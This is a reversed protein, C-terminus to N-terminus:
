RRARPNGKSFSYLLQGDQRHMEVSLETSSIQVSAFGGQDGYFYRLYGEPVEAINRTDNRRSLKEESGSGSVVYDVTDGPERIHQLQHDHGCLYLAVGHAQLMPRLREVLTEQTGHSSISYVPYHGAVVLWDATSAALTEELWQWHTHTMWTFNRVGYIGLRMKRWEYQLVQTDIMVVEVTMSSQPISHVQTYYLHPYNWRPNLASYALQQTIDGYHDHNGGLVYFPTRQLLVEYVKEFGEEVRTVSANTNMQQYIGNSYFNDGLFLVFDVANEEAYLGMQNAITIQLETTFPYSNSGGADQRHARLAM